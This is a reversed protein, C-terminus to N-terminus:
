FSKAKTFSVEWKNLLAPSDKCSSVRRCSSKSPESTVSCVNHEDMYCRHPLWHVDIHRTVSNWVTESQKTASSQKWRKTCKWQTGIYIYIYIYITLFCNIWFNLYKDEKWFSQMPLASFFLFIQVKLYITKKVMYKRLVNFTPLQKFICICIHLEIVQM